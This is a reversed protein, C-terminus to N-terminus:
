FRYGAIIHVEQIYRQQMTSNKYQHIVADNCQERTADNTNSFQENKANNCREITANNFQQMQQMAADDFQGMASNQMTANLANVHSKMNLASIGPLLQQASRCRRCWDLM